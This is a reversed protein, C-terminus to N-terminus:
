NENEFYKLSNRLIKLESDSEKFSNLAFDLSVENFSFSKNPSLQALIPLDVIIVFGLVPYGGTTQADAMLVLPYGNPLLQITGFTVSSSILEKSEIEILPMGELKCAMRNSQASIKYKQNFFIQKNENSLSNFAPAAVFRISTRKNELYKRSIGVKLCKKHNTNIKLFDPILLKNIFLNTSRSGCWEESLFGDKVGFYAREGSKKYEFKLIDGISAAYQKNNFIPINNLTPSFDAGTIAFVCSEEFLIISAPFHVELCAENESNLLLINLLKFSKWDIIGGSNVGFQKMNPRGLDQITTLVGKKLFRM